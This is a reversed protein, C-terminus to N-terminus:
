PRRAYKATLEGEAIIHGQMAKLLEERTTRSSLSSPLSQDLAYITFVYRHTGSPPCPGGWGIKKFDNTGQVAGNVLTSKESFGELLKRSAAPLNWMLWHTWVGRPADPDTCILVQSKVSDPVGSWSLPPSINAGDCTYKAPIQGGEKFAASELKIRPLNPPATTTPGCSTLVGCAACLALLLAFRKM